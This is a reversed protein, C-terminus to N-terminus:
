HYALPDFPLHSSDSLRQGVQMINCHKFAEKIRINLKKTTIKICTRSPKFKNAM